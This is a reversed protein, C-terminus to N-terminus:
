REFDEWQSDTFDTAQPQSPAAALWTRVLEVDEWVMLAAYRDDPNAKDISEALVEQSRIFREIAHRIDPPLRSTLEARPGGQAPQTEAGAEVGIAQGEATRPSSLPIEQEHHMGQAIAAAYARLMDRVRLPIPHENTAAAERVEEATYKM